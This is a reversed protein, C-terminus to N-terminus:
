FKSQKGILVFKVGPHEKLYEDFQNVLADESLIPVKIEM